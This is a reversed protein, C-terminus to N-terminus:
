YKIEKYQLKGVPFFPTFLGFNILLIYWAMAGHIILQIDKNANTYPRTNLLLHM